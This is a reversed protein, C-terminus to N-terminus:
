GAEVDTCMWGGTKTRELRLALARTRPGCSVIVSTEAVDPAPYTTIVRAVRPRQGGTLLPTIVRLHERVRSTTINVLQRAPRSGDITELLLQAFRHPWDDGPAAGSRAVVPVPAPTALWGAGPEGDYPPACEPVALTRATLLASM